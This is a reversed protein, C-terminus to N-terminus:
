WMTRMKKISLGVLFRFIEYFKRSPQKRTLVARVYTTTRWTPESSMKWKTSEGDRKVVEYRATVALNKREAPWNESSYCYFRAVRSHYDLTTRSCRRLKWKQCKWRRSKQRLNTGKAELMNGVTNEATYTEYKIRLLKKKKKKKKREKKKKKKKKAFELGFTVIEM